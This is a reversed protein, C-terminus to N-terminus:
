IIISPYEHLPHTTFNLSNKVLTDQVLAPIAEITFNFIETGNMFLHDSSIPNGSEDFELDNIKDTDKLM